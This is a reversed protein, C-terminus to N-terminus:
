ADTTSVPLGTASLSWAYACSNKGPSTRYKSMRAAFTPSPIVSVQRSRESRCASRCASSSSRAWDRIVRSPRMSGTTSKAGIRSPSPRIVSKWRRRPSRPPRHRCGPSGRPAAPTGASRATDRCTAARSTRGSRRRSPARSGVEHGVRPRVRRRDVAGLPDEVQAPMADSPTQRDGPAVHRLPMLALGLELLRVGVRQQVLFAGTRDQLRHEVRLDDQSGNAILRAPYNVELEGVGVRRRGVEVADLGSPEGAHAQEALVRGCARRAEERVVDSDDLGPLRDDTVAPGIRLVHQAALHPHIVDAGDLEAVSHTLCPTVDGVPIESLLRQRLALGSVPQEGLLRGVHHEHDAGVTAHPPHRRGQGPQQAPANLSEDVM